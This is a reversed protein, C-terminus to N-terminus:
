ISLDQQLVYIEIYEYFDFPLVNQSIFLQM